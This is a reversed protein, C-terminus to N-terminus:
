IEQNLIKDQTLKIAGLRTKMLRLSRVYISRAWESTKNHRGAIISFSEPDGFIGIRRAVIERQIPKLKSLALNVTKSLDSADTFLTSVMESNLWEIPSSAEDPNNTELPIARTDSNIIRKIYEITFDRGMRSIAEQLEEATGYRGEEQLISENARRIKNIDNVINQPLRVTRHDSNLYTLIEKRIHWVAYSIFKFGKTPDFTRAADCLGINGQCILDEFPAGTSTYQKAVSLVFRLNSLILKQIAGEDGKQALLAIKFEEEPGLMSHSSVDTFYRAVNDSRDTIREASIKLQKV